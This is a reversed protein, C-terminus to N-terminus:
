EETKGVVKLAIRVAALYHVEDKILYVKDIYNNLIKKLIGKIKPEKLGSFYQILQLQEHLTLNNTDLRGQEHKLAIDFYTYHSDTEPYVSVAESLIQIREKSDALANIVAVTCLASDSEYLRKIRSYDHLGKMVEFVIEFREDPDIEDIYCAAKKYEGKACYQSALEECAEEYSSQKANIVPYFQNDLIDFEGNKFAKYLRIFEELWFIAKESCFEKTQEENAIFAAAIQEGESRQTMFAYASGTYYAAELEPYFPRHIKKDGSLDENFIVRWELIRDFMAQGTYFMMLRTTYCYKVIPECPQTKSVEYGKKWYRLADDPAFTYCAEAIQFYGMVDDPNEDILRRLMSVNRIEKRRKENENEYLYGYHLFEAEINVIKDSSLNLTEHIIGSFKMGPQTKYIRLLRSEQSADEILANKTLSKIIVTATDCDPTDTFFKILEDPTQLIEDADIYMYWESDIGLLTQNRADAFNETWEFSSFVDAYEGAIEPTQDTSGTDVIVLRTDVADRLPQLAELCRKLYKKENKVIMGITLKHM